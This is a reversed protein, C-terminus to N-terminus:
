RHLVPSLRKYILVTVLSVLLGKILNFPVIGYLVMTTLSDISPNAATGMSVIAEVPMGFAKAYFPILIYLNALVGVLAMVLTGLILGNIAMRRSHKRKYLIAAPVVMASGILFNALEGVGGTGSNKLVLHLLNKVLEVTVGALPGLSFGALLAPVDSFDIQLFAPFVGLPFELLQLLFAVASLMGVKVIWKTRMSTTM